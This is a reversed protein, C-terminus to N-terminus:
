MLPLVGNPSQLETAVQVVGQAAQSRTLADTGDFSGNELSLIGLNVAIADAAFHDPSITSADDAKFQFMGPKSLIADYGLAESFIHAAVDRTVPATPNLPNSKDLWGIEYATVLERYAPSDASVGQVAKAISATSAQMQNYHDVTGLADMVLKVFTQVTMTENPHVDGNADVSILGRQALLQLQAAATSSTIDKLTGTYPQFDFADNAVFQGKIADYYSNVNSIPEPVYALEIQPKQQSTDPSKGQNPQTMFYELTLPMEKDYAANAKTLPYAGAPSPFTAENLTQNLNLYLLRGTSSDLTLNGNGTEDQVQNFLPIISFAATSSSDNNMDQAVLALSALHGAYIRRMIDTADKQLTVQSLPHSAPTSMAKKIDVPQSDSYSSVYGYTADIGVNVPNAKTANSSSGEFTFNWTTDAASGKWENESLLTGSLGLTKRAFALATAEDWNVKVATLPHLVGHGTGLPTPEAYTTPVESTGDPHLWKGTQADIAIGLANQAVDFPQNWGDQQSAPSPAYELAVSNTSDKHYMPDFELHLGLATNFTATADSMSVAPTAKPFTADDWADHVSQLNGNQDIVISFGNFPAPLGGVVREYDFEYSEASRLNSSQFPRVHMRVHDVQSPFLKKAWTNAIDAAKSQSVPVPFEFSSNPLYHNFDTVTGNMADITVYMSDTPKSTDSTQFSLSYTAHTQSPSSSQFSENQVAYTTPISFTKRAIAEAQAATVNRSTTTKASTAANATLPMAVMGTMVIMAALAGKPLVHFDM